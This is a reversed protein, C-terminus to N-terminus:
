PIVQTLSGVLLWFYVFTGVGVWGLVIGAIALGDGGERGKSAAIQRRASYGFALALISGMWWLWLIGLVLSAIAYGNTAQPQPYPRQQWDDPARYSEPLQESM